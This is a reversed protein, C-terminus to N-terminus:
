DLLLKTFRSRIFATAQVFKECPVGSIDMFLFRSMELSCVLFEALIDHCLFSFIFCSFTYVMWVNIACVLSVRLWDPSATKIDPWKINWLSSSPQFHFTVNVIVSPDTCWSSMITAITSETLLVQCSCFSASSFSFFYIFRCKSWPVNVCWSAVLLVVLGLVLLVLSIHFVYGFLSFSKVCISCPVLYCCIDM